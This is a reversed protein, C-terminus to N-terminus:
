ATEDLAKRLEEAEKIRVDVFQQSKEMAQRAEDNGFEGFTEGLTILAEAVDHTGKIYSDLTERYEQISERNLTQPPPPIEGFRRLQNIKQTVQSNWFEDFRRVEERTKGGFLNLLPNATENVHQEIQQKHPEYITGNV